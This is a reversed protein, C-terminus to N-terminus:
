SDGTSEAAPRGSGPGAEQQAAPAALLARAEELDEERVVVSVSAVQGIGSYVGGMAAGHLEADIGASELVSLWVAALFQDPTRAVTVLRAHM